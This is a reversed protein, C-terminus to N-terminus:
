FISEVDHYSSMSFTYRTEYFFYLQLKFIQAFWFKHYYGLVFVVFGISNRLIITISKYLIACFISNRVEVIQCKLSWCCCCMKLIYRHALFHFQSWEVSPTEWANTASQHLQKLNLSRGPCSLTVLLNSYAKTCYAKVIRM